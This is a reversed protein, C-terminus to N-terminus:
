PSGQAWSNAMSNMLDIALEQSVNELVLAASSRNLEYGSETSVVEYSKEYRYDRGTKTASGVVIGTRTEKATARFAYGSPSAHDRRILIEVFVDALDGLAKMEISKVSTVSYPDSSNANSAAVLRLITARDVTKAGAKMFPQLFNDEFRWMWAEEPDQRRAQEVHQQSYTTVGRNTDTSGEVTTGGGEVVTGQPTVVTPGGGVSVREGVGAIVERGPTRWERVEDSLARNFYVAVRPSEAAQYLERFRAISGAYTEETVPQVAGSLPKGIYPSYSSGAPAARAAGAPPASGRNAAPIPQASSVEVPPTEEELYQTCGGMGLISVFVGAFLCQFIKRVDMIM